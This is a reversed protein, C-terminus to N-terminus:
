NQDEKVHKECLKVVAKGGLVEPYVIHNVEDEIENKLDKSHVRAIIDCEPNREKVINVIRRVENEGPVTLVVLDAKEINARELIHSSTADGYIYPFNLEKLIDMKKPDYDIVVFPKRYPLITDVTLHGVTGYGILVVHNKFPKKKGFEKREKGKPFIKNVVNSISKFRRLWGYINESNMISYPTIMITIIATIIVYSYLEHSILDNLYGLEAMIFSFEGIQIMGLGVKLATKTTYGFAKSSLSLIVFKGIVMTLVIASLLLMNGGLLFINLSMGISVFFLIVFIDRIPRIKNVIELGYECEALVLGALFAGLALPIGLMYAFSATGLSIVLITVLFLSKNELKGVYRLIKPLALRGILLILIVYALNYAIPLIYDLFNNGEVIFVNSLVTVFVIVGIDQVILIGIMIRGALEKEEGLNQLVRIVVITSSISLISGLFVSQVISLNFLMGVGFGLLFVFTMELIGGIVSIKWIKKLTKPSFELGVVFLLLTVGIQSLTHVDEVKGILGLAFPGIIIGAFLYGLIVPQKLKSVIYGFVLAGFLMITIDVLLRISEIDQIM